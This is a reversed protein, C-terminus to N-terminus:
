KKLIRLDYRYCEVKYEDTQIEYWCSDCNSGHFITTIIGKMPFLNEFSFVQKDTEIHLLPFLLNCDKVLVKKGLFNHHNFLDIQLLKDLKM